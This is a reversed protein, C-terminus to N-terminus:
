AQIYYDIAEVISELMKKTEELKKITTKSKKQKKDQKGREKVVLQPVFNDFQAIETDYFTIKGNEDKQIGIFCPKLSPRGLGSVAPVKVGEEIEIKRKNITRILAEKTYTTASPVNLRKALDRLAYLPKESLNM